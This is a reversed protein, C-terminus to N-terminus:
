KLDRHPHEAQHCPKCILQVDEPLEHGLNVYTLHHLHLTKTRKSCRECQEGRVEIIAARFAFWEPSKIYAKYEPTFGNVSQRSGRKPTSVRRGNFGLEEAFNWIIHKKPAPRVSQGISEKYRRIVAALVRYKPMYGGPLFGKGELFKAIRYASKIKHNTKM